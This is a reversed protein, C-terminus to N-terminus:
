KKVMCLFLATQNGCQMLTSKAGPFHLVSYHGIGLPLVQVSFQDSLCVYLLVVSVNSFLICKFNHNTFANTVSCFYIDWKIFLYCTHMRM